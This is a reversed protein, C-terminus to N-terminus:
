ATEKKNHSKQFSYETNQIVYGRNIWTRIMKMPRFRENDLGQQQRVRRADDLTFTDPLLELLNISSCGDLLSYYSHVNFHVFKFTRM